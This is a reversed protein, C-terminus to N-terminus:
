VHDTDRINTPLPSPPLDLVPDDLASRAGVPPATGPTPNREGDALNGRAPAPRADSRGASDPLHLFQPSRHLLGDVPRVGSKSPPLPPPEHRFRRRGTRPCGV